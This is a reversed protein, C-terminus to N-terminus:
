GLLELEPLCGISVMLTELVLMDLVGNHINYTFGM